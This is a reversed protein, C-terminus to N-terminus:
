AREIGHAVWRYVDQAYYALGALCAWQIASLPGWREPSLTGAAAPGFPPKLFDLGFRLLFYGVMFARFQDGRRRMFNGRYLIWALVGVGLIEYLATPHRLAGDGYNWGWPLTTVNGYTLDAVGSLQCGIRGVVIAVLLPLVFGDGTSQRWGLARKASEVGFLAGLLGGVITKGGLWIALPQGELAGWYQLMYLARSGVAAGLAAGALLGWRTWHESPQTSANAKRWYLLGGVTFAGIELASHVIPPFM